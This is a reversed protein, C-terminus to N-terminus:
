CETRIVGGVVYDQGGIDAGLANGFRPVKGNVFAHELYFEREM